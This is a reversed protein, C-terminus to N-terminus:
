LVQGPRMRQYEAAAPAGVKLVLDAAGWVDDPAPLITAGAAAFEEDPLSSGAGSDAEIFVEHGARALEHVGAPTIAVRFENNKVEAPVGVKMHGGMTRREALRRGVAAPAGGLFGRWVRLTGM